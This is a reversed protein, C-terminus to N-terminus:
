FPNMVTRKTTELYISNMVIKIPIIVIIHTHIINFIKLLLRLTIYNNLM